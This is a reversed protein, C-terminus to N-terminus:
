EGERGEKKPKLVCKQMKGDERRGKREREREGRGCWVVKMRKKEKSSVVQMRSSAM